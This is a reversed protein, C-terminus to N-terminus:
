TGVKYDNLSNSSKGSLKNQDLGLGESELQFCFATYLPFFINTWTEKLYM